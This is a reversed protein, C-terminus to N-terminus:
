FYSGAVCGGLAQVMKARPHGAVWYAAQVLWCRLHGHVGSAQIVLNLLCLRLFPWSNPLVVRAEWESIDGGEDGPMDKRQMWFLCCM